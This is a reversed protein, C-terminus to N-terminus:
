QKVLKVIAPTTWDPRHWRELELRISGLFVKMEAQLPIAAEDDSVWGTFEGSLGASTGGKWDAFGTYKRTRIPRDFADIEVNEIPGTFDLM